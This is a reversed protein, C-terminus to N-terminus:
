GVMLSQQIVGMLLLLMLMLVWLLLLCSAAVADVLGGVVRRKQGEGVRSRLCSGGRGM